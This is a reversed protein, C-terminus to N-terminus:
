NKKRSTLAIVGIAFCVLLFASGNIYFAASIPIDHVNSVRHTNAWYVTFCFGIIWALPYTLLAILGIFRARIGIISKKSTLSVRGKVLTILGFISILIYGLIFIM